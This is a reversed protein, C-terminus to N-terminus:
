NPSTTTVAAAMSLSPGHEIERGDGLVCRASCGLLLAAGFESGVLVSIERYDARHHESVFLLILNPEADGLQSRLGGAVERVAEVPDLLASIGSGWKM